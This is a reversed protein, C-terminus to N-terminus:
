KGKRAVLDIVASMGVHRAGESLEAEYEDLELIEMGAFATELLDRTYLHDLEKPGGTGYKLQAPTYGELIVLGGPKLCTHFDAFLRTRLVPDAFQFFIGVVIDYTDAPPRWTALDAHIHTLTVGRDAALRKSKALAVASGDVATVVLGQEALWVGNRGEGDAISLAAGGVTLRAAQRELFANPRTGFIYEDGAFREDWTTAL